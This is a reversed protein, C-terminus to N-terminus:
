HNRNVKNHLISFWTKKWFKLSRKYQLLLLGVEFLADINLNRSAKFFIACFKHCRSGIFNSLSYIWGNQKRQNATHTNTHGLIEILILSLDRIFLCNSIVSIGTRCNWRGEIPGKRGVCGQVDMDADTVAIGRWVLKGEDAFLRLHIWIDWIWASLTLFYYNRAQKTKCKVSVPVM